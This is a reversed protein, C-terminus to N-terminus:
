TMFYGNATNATAASEENDTMVLAPAFSKGVWARTSNTSLQM